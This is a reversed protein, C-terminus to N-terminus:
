ITLNELLCSITVPGVGGPVPTIFSVVDKVNEFDVDGKPSGVDIVIAGKKVMDGKIINPIGTTSILVDAKLTEEKLDKTKSNCEIVEFGLNRLVPLVSESGVGHLPSYVIKVDRGAYVSVKKASEAFARDVEESIYIVKGAEVAESFTMKNIKVVTQFEKEIERGAQELVQVGTEAYVKYGNFEPPNHSATVVIGGALNLHRVTFSLEPTARCDRFVYTKIGNGALVRATEEM